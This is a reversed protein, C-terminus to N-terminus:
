EHIRRRVEGPDLGMEEARKAVGGVRDLPRVALMTDLKM